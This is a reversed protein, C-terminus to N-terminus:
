LFDSYDILRIPANPSGLYFAGEEIRGSEPESVLVATPEPLLTSTAMATAPEAIEEVVSDINAETPVATPAEPSPPEVEDAAAGATPLILEATNTETSESVATQGQCGIIVFSIVFLIIGRTLQNKMRGM